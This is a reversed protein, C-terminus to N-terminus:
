VPVRVTAKLGGLGAEGLTVEGGHSRAIDRAISLGLGNGSEDMNRAEDLRFFPRFVDERAGPPIGPGDDEVALTLWEADRHVFVSVTNGYRFGNAVLNSVMREFAAPRVQVMPDGDITFTFTKGKLAAEVEFKTMLDVLDLDGAHEEGDGRAFDLYGELMRQMDDVDQELAETEPSPPVLALQLRFRTLVTKLDHSVGALMATRQEIQRAIRARMENFSQGAQRVERAGRPHYSEDVPRGKGFREAEDALRQIPKIQNRLFLIAILILVLAAGVMWAMFIHTNSAYASSRPAFARLVDDGLKIRIELMKSRGVTDIWFPRDIRSTIRESLARDLISFFPKPAPPPLTENRLVEVNLDMTERALRRVTEYGPDQPYTEVIEVVAALKQVLTNSLRDTVQQWHREMFVAAVITQLLIMPAIIIILSRGYLGQPMYAAVRRSLLRWRGRLSRRARSVGDREERGPGGVNGGPVTETVAM